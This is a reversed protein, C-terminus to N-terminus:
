SYDGIHENNKKRLIFIANRMVLKIPPFASWDLTIRSFGEESLLVDHSDHFLEVDGASVLLYNFEWLQPSPKGSVNRPM